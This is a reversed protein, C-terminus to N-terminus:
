KSTFTGSNWENNEYPPCSADEPVLIVDADLLLLIADIIVSSMSQSTLSVKILDPRTLSTITSDSSEGVESYPADVTSTM